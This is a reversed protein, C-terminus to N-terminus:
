LPFHSKLCRFCPLLCCQPIGLYSLRSSGFLFAHKIMRDWSMNLLTELFTTELYCDVCFTGKLNALFPSYIIESNSYSVTLACM